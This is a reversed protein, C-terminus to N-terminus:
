TAVRKTMNLETGTHADSNHRVDDMLAGILFVGLSESDEPVRHREHPQASEPRAGRVRIHLQKAEARCLIDIIGEDDSTQIVTTCAEAVALKVDEVEEVTFPLHRAVAAVTLRAVAVWEPRSPIRLEVVSPAEQAPPTAGEPRVSM